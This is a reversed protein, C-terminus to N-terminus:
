LTYGPKYQAYLIHDQDYEVCLVERVGELIACTQKATCVIDLMVVQNIQPGYKTRVAMM